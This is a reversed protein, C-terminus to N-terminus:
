HPECVGVQKIEFLQPIEPDVIFEDHEKNDKRRAPDFGASLNKCKYILLELILRYTLSHFTETQILFM